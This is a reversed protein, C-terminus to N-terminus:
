PPIYTVPLTVKSLRSQEMVIIANKNEWWKGVKLVISELFPLGDNTNSNSIIYPRKKIEIHQKIKKWYLLATSKKNAIIIIESKPFMEIAERIRTLDFSDKM